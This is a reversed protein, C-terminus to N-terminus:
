KWWVLLEFITMAALLYWRTNLALKIQKTSMDYNCRKIYLDIFLPWLWFLVLYFLIHVILFGVKHVVFFHQAQHFEHSFQLLQPTLWLFFLVPLLSQLLVIITSRIYKNLM